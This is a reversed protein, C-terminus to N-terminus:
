FHHPVPSFPHHIVKHLPTSSDGSASYIVQTPWDGKPAKTYKHVLGKGPNELAGPQVINLNTMQPASGIKEIMDFLPLSRHALLNLNGVGNRAQGPGEILKIMWFIFM